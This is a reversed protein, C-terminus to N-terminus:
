VQPEPVAHNEVRDRLLQLILKTLSGLGHGGWVIHLIGAAIHVAPQSAGGRDYRVMDSRMIAVDVRRSDLTMTFKDLAAHLVVASQRFRCLAIYSDVEAFSSGGFPKELIDKVIIFEWRFGQGSGGLECGSLIDLNGQQVM